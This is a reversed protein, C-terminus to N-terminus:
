LKVKFSEGNVKVIYIGHNLYIDITDKLSEKGILKGDLTYICVYGSIGNGSVRLLGENVVDIKVDVGSSKTKMVSTEDCAKLIVNIDHDSSINNFTYKNNEIYSTCDANDVYFTSLEWGDEPLIKITCSNGEKVNMGIKGYECPIYISYEMILSNIM